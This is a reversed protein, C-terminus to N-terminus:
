TPKKRTRQCIEFDSCLINTPHEKTMSITAMPNGVDYASLFYVTTRRRTGKFLSKDSRGKKGSFTQLRGPNSSSADAM